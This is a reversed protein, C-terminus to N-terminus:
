SCTVIHVKRPKNNSSRKKPDLVGTEIKYFVHGYFSKKIVAVYEVGEKNILNLGENELAFDAETKTIFYSSIKM